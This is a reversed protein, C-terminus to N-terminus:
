LKDESCHSVILLVIYLICKSLLGFEFESIGLETSQGM